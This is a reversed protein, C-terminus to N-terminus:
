IGRELKLADLSNKVVFGLDGVSEYIKALYEQIDKSERMKERISKVKENSNIMNDRAYKGELYPATKLNSDFVKGLEEKLRNLSDELRKYRVKEAMLRSCWRGKIAATRFAVDKINAITITTDSKFEEYIDNLKEELSKDDFVEFSITSSKHNNEIKEDSYEINKESEDINSDSIASEISNDLMLDWEQETSDEIKDRLEM